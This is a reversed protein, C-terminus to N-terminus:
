YCRRANQFRRRLPHEGSWRPRNQRQGPLIGLRTQIQQRLWSAMARILLMNSMPPAVLMCSARALFRVTLSPHQACAWLASKDKASVFPGCISGPPLWLDVCAFNDPESRVSICYICSYVCGLLVLGDDWGKQHKTLTRGSVTVGWATRVM